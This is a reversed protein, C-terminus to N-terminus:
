FTETKNAVDHKRGRKSNNSINLGSLALGKAGSGNRLKKVVVPRTRWGIQDDTQEAEPNVGRTGKV